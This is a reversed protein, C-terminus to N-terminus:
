DKEIKTTATLLLDFIQLLSTELDRDIVRGQENVKLRMAPITLMGSEIFDVGLASLVLRLSDHAKDGGMPTPSASITAIPKGYLEASSVLWELANKLVGPMGFAYEPTCIVVSNSERLLKRLKSVAVPAEDTDKEPSFFPIKDLGEFLIVDARDGAMAQVAKLIATNSSNKRISGSIAAIKKKM